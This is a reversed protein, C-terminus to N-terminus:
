RQAVGCEPEGLHSRHSSEFSCRAPLLRTCSRQAVGSFSRPSRSRASGRTLNRSYRYSAVNRRHRELVRRGPRVHRREPLVFGRVASKPRPTPVPGVRIPADHHASALRQNRSNDLPGVINRVAVCGCASVEVHAFAQCRDCKDRLSRSSSVHLVREADSEVSIGAGGLPLRQRRRVGSDAGHRDSSGLACRRVSKQLPTLSASAGSRNMM